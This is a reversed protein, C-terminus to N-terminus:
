ETAPRAGEPLRYVYISKGLVAVPKSRVLERYYDKVRADTLYIQQLCTASVAFYCPPRPAEPQQAMPWGGMQYPVNAATVGYFEPSATGFYALYLPLDTHQRQWAALAKLDQGWDLNSDGLKFFGGRGGGSPANFFALYDPYAALNEGALGLLLVAALIKGLSRARGILLALGCGLFVFIWPYIPLIHRLGINLNTTMATLLYIAPLGCSALILWIKSSSRDEDRGGKRRTLLLGVPIAVMALLTATPTKFLICAPFYYWWGTLSTRGLLFARHIHTTGYTYLFGVLWPQPLLHHALGFLLLRSVLPDGETAAKNLAEQASANGGLENWAKLARAGEVIKDPNLSSHGDPTPLYRFGYAAWTVLICCAALVLILALAGAFKQFRSRCVWKLIPWDGPLGARALLILAATPACLVGSFKVNMAAATTLAIGALTGATARRGCQWLFFGLATMALSLMVDNKFISSHATFNPDFCYFTTAIWAGARGALTWAIWGILGGVAMGLLTFMLRSRQIFSDGDNGPTQYLTEICFPWQNTSFDDLMANWSPKSTDIKLDSATQPLAGWYGFLVPDEPNVRFDGMTLHVFGGVSHTTEDYTASKGHMASYSLFGFVLLEAACVAMVLYRSNRQVFTREM